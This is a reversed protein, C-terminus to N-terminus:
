QTLLGSLCGYIFTQINLSCCRSNQTNTHKITQKWVSLFTFVAPVSLCRLNEPLLCGHTHTHKDSLTLSLWAGNKSVWVSKSGNSHPWIHLQTQKDSIFWVMVAKFQASALVWTNTNVHSTYYFANTLTCLTHFFVLAKAFWVGVQWLM